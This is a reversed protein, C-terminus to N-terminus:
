TQPHRFRFGKGEEGVRAETARVRCNELIVPRTQSRTRASKREQQRRVVPRPTDKMVAYTSVGNASNESARAVIVCFDAASAGSILDSTSNLM